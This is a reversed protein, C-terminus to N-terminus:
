KPLRKKVDAAILSAVYESTSCFQKREAQREALLKLKEPLRFTLTSDKAQQGITKQRPQEHERV